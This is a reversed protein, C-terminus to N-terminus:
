WATSTSSGASWQEIADGVTPDYVVPLLEDLHDALLKIYLVENRDHIENLYIYKHLDNPQGNLQAYARSAQEELTEVAAPLRGTIGLEAREELTYATGRNRFRDQLATPKVPM